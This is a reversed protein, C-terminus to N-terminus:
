NSAKNRQEQSAKFKIELPGSYGPSNVAGNGLDGMKACEGCLYIGVVRFPNAREELPKVVISNRGPLAWGVHAYVVIHVSPLNNNYAPDIVVSPQHELSNVCVEVKPYDRPDRMSMYALGVPVPVDFRSDFGMYGGKTDMSLTMKKLGSPNNPGEGLLNFPSANFYDIGIDGNQFWNWCQDGIGFTGLEKAAFVTERHEQLLQLLENAIMTHGEKSLHHWDSSFWGADLVEQVTEPRPMTWIYGGADKVLQEMQEKGCVERGCDDISGPNFTDGGKWVWERDPNFM